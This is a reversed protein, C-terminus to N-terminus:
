AFLGVRQRKPMNPLVRVLQSDTLRFRSELVDAIIDRFDTTVALDRGQYLASQELGPWEGYVKGGRVPGGMVWSVNGHGHDTGLSGNQRITRGFESMVLITTEAYVPGLGKALLDIAETLLKFRNALQGSAGGQNAHTDWGGVPIFALRVRPDRKMLQALRAADGSLNTLGLAGQDAKPDDSMLNAMIEKRTQMADRVTLSLRDDGDYLERLGSALHARDLASGMTASRGSGLSAVPAPGSFIRPPTPGLNIAELLRRETQGQNLTQILRNMWGDPTSKIGPTASEMYDQADFHSRSPDHSGSAHIFALEGKAFYPHLSAAQPHLGFQSDLDLLGNQRTPAPIAIQERAQYYHRDQYPVVLSLGDMAGRLMIVILRSHNLNGSADSTPHAFALRVPNSFLSPAGAITASRTLHKIFSRRNSTM